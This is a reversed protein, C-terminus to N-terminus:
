SLFGFQCFDFVGQDGLVILPVCLESIVEVGRMGRHQAYQAHLGFWCLRQLAGSAM